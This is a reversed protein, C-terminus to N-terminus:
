FSIIEKRLLKVRSKRKTRFSAESEQNGGSVSPVSETTDDNNYLYKKNKERIQQLRSPTTSQM